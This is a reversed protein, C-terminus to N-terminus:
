YQMNHFGVSFFKRAGSDPRRGETYNVLLNQRETQVQRCDQKLKLLEVIGNKVELEMDKRELKAKLEANQAKLKKVERSEKAKEEKDVTRGGTAASVVADPVNAPTDSSCHAESVGARVTEPSTRTVQQPQLTPSTSTCPVPIGKPESLPRRSSSPRNIVTAPGDKFESKVIVEVDEKTLLSVHRKREKYAGKLNFNM